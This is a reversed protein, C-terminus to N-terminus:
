LGSDLEPGVLRHLGGESVLEGEGLDPYHEMQDDRQSREWSELVCEENGQCIKSRGLNKYRPGQPGDVYHYQGVFRYQRSDSLPYFKDGWRGEFYFWGIPAQPNLNSSRLIDNRYDYTYSKLNLLPDWLPGRDTVDHLIGGPLVYPHVGPTGYM